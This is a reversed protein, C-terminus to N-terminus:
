AVDFTWGKWRTGTKICNLIRGLPVKTEKVAYVVTKFVYSRNEPLYIGIVENGTYDDTEDSAKRIDRM